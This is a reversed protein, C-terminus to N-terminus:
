TFRSPVPTLEAPMESRRVKVFMLLMRALLVRVMGSSSTESSSHSSGHAGVGVTVFELRSVYVSEKKSASNFSCSIM